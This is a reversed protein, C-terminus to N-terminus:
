SSRVQGTTASWTLSGREFAQTVDGSALQRPGGVPYGLPGNERGQGAWMAALAGSVPHPGSAPSWYITAGQFGQSCGGGRLGCVEDTMPYGLYGDQADLGGWRSRIGGGVPRAGSAPSWYITGGQFAQYCGGRILGCVEDTLPYGLYGGQAGLAGWRGGLAGGVSRAGSAPSWYITGGQFGQSCGGGRLGCVEDTMPYGLYGDQAGLASWRGRIAGGVSRAGSAPSWFITGGQYTQYCGGRPLGCVEDSV